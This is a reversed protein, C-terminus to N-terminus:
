CEEVELESPRFRWHALNRGTIKELQRLDSELVQMLDMRLADSVRPRKKVETNISRIRQAVGLRKLRLVRKVMSGLGLMWQPPRQAVRALLPNRHQHAQNVQAFNNLGDDDLGLFELLELYTARPDRVWDDFWLIQIQEPPFYRQVREVQEGFRAVAVYDLFKAERCTSPIKRGSKREEILSMAEAFDEVTEDRNYLLQGHYSVMFDVPQRLCIIIKAQPDYAAIKQVAVQSYLYIPSSEGVYKESDLGDFLAEYEELTEAWRFGPFDENFFHAEKLSGFGIDSRSSLYEVWATTGCKPAGIIFLNPKVM